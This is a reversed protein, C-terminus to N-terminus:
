TRLYYIGALPHLMMPLAARVLARACARVAARDPVFACAPFARCFSATPRSACRLASTRLRIRSAPPLTATTIASTAVSIATL